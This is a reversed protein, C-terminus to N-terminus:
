ELVGNVFYGKGSERNFDLEMIERVRRRRWGRNNKEREIGM